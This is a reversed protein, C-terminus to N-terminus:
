RMLWHAPGPWYAPLHQSILPLEDSTSVHCHVILKWTDVALIHEGPRIGLKGGAHRGEDTADIRREAVLRHAQGQPILEVLAASRRGRPAHKGSGNAGEEGGAASEAIHNADAGLHILLRKSYGQHM